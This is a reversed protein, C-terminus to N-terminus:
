SSPCCYGDMYERVYEMHLLRHADESVRGVPVAPCGEYVTYPALISEPPVVSQRRVWVGDAIVAGQGIVCDEDVRVFTGVQSAECVSGEGIVTFAGYRVSPHCQASNQNLFTLLPPRLIAGAGVVVYDEFTFRTMDGHVVCGRGFRATPPPQMEGLLLAEGSERQAVAPPPAMVMPPLPPPLGSTMLPPIFLDEEDAPGATSAM